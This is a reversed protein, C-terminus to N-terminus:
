EWKNMSLGNENANTDQPKMELLHKMTEGKRTLQENWTYKLGLAFPNCFLNQSAIEDYEMSEPWGKVHMKM